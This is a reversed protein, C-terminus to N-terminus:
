RNELFDVRLGEIGEPDRQFKDISLADMKSLTKKIFRRVAIRAKKGRFWFTYRDGQKGGSDLEERVFIYPEEKKPFSIGIRWLRDKAKPAKSERRVKSKSPM